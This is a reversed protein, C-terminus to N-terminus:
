KSGTFLIYYKLYLYFCTIVKELKEQMETLHNFIGEELFCEQIIKIDNWKEMLVVFNKNVNDFM